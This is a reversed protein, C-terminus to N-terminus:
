GDPNRGRARYSLAAEPIAYLLSASLSIALSTALGFGSVLGVFIFPAAMLWWLILSRQWQPRSRMWQGFSFYVETNRPGLLRDLVFFLGAVAVITIVLMPAWPLREVRPSSPKDLSM